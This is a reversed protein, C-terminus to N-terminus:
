PSLLGELMAQYRTATVTVTQGGEGFFYPGILTTYSLVCWVTIHPAYPDHQMTAHPNESGWFRCNQKSVMGDLYFHAEDSMFLHKRFQASMLKPLLWTCFRIRRAKVGRRLRHVRELKYPHLRLWKRLIRHASSRSIGVKRALRRVSLRPNRAIARRVKAFARTPLASPRGPISGTSASETVSGSAEFRELLQSIAQRSPGFRRNGERLFRRRALTASGTEYYLAVLRVREERTLM